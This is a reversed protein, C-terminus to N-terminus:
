CRRSRVLKRMLYESYSVGRVQYADRDIGYERFGMSRYLALATNATEVMLHIQRVQPARLARKIAIRMLRRAVGRRREPPSVYLSFIYRQSARSEQELRILGIMRESQFAGWMVRKRSPALYDVFYSRPRAKEVEIDSGFSTPDTELGQLRLRVFEDVDSRGLRRIVINKDM